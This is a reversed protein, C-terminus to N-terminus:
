ETERGGVKLLIQVSTGHPVVAELQMSVPYSNFLQLRTMVNVLGIGSVSEESPADGDMYLSKEEEQNSLLNPEYMITSRKTPIPAAGAAQLEENLLTLKDPAIGFGNDQVIIELTDSAHWSSTIRLLGGHITRDLGHKFYNEVIPQLTMKPVIVSLTSPDIDIEVEFVHEFRQGQLQLYAKVHDVEERLSATSENNYMSYRMMKAVASLLSYIHPADHKLALTGISQLVNNMFHPNIQAQLAKLQNTKNALELKYEQDILDNITKMMDRFRKSMIGIEDHSDVKINVNIKGAQIQNMYRMLQAIPKTIRISIWLTAGIIILTSISLLVMNFMLTRNTDQLLYRKPMEKIVTWQAIPSDISEHVFLANDYEFNGKMEPTLLSDSLWPKQLAKGLLTKDDAYMVFGNQDLIYLREKDKAYLQDTIESIAELKVDISLIGLEKTSPIKYIPRHLTFIPVSPKWQTTPAFGYTESMYTPQIQIGQKAYNAAPAYPEAEYKRYPLSQAVLIARKVESRYLYVQHVHRMSSEINQMVAYAQAEMYTDDYGRELMRFFEFNTYVFLSSQNLDHLMNQLNHKGQYILKENEELTREQLSQYNNIYTIVMTSMTPVITAILLLTILKTRIRNWRM